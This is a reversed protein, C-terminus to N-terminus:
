ACDQYLWRSREWVEKRGERVDRGGFEKGQRRRRMCTTDASIGCGRTMERLDMGSRTVRERM